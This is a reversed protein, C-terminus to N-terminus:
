PAVASWGTTNNAEFDHAFLSGCGWVQFSAIRTKWSASSTSSYYQNTYWFTCDDVPDVNMSSYDGWRNSSHTQSGGGAMLIKEGMTMQGLPDYGHRATYRIAPFMSGNSASYGLAIDGDGDMAASGMWRHISDALSFVGQQFITPTGVADRLEIWRPAAIGAGADVTNQVLLSDHDDFFRHTARFMLRGDSIADLKVATGSQPICNRTGACTSDALVTADAPALLFSADFNTNLGLTSNAPTTWDVHVEWVRLTDVADGIWGSNDWELVRNPEGVTPLNTGELDAPLMGGYPASGLPFPVQTDFLIQQAVLGLLMKSREYVAIGAGRWGQTASDFQNFTVYYGDPWLGFHPYDNLRNTAWLFNYAYWAGTPDPTQSIAICQNYASGGPFPNVAFQSVLWRDALQDYIVIPDGDNTTRCRDNVPLASFITNIAVPAVLQTGTKSYVAMRTNVAQVYHNPGVDGTTDPPLSGNANVGDFTALPNTLRNPAPHIPFASQRLDAGVEAVEWQSHDGKSDLSFNRVERVVGDADAPLAPLAAAEAALESLPRSTAVAVCRSSTVGPTPKSAAVPSPVLSVGLLLMPLCSQIKM